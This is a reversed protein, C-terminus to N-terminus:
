AALRVGLMGPVHGHEDQQQVALDPEFRIQAMRQAEDQNVVQDLDMGAISIGVVIGAPEILLFPFAGRGFPQEALKGGVQPPAEFGPPQLEFRGFRGFGAEGLGDVPKLPKRLVAKRTSPGPALVADAPLPGTQAGIKRAGHVGNQLPQHVLQVCAGVFRAQPRRGTGGRGAGM